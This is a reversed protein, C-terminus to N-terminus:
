AHKGAMAPLYACLRQKKFQGATIKGVLFLQQNNTIHLSKNRPSM